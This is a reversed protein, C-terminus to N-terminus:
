TDPQKMHLKSDRTTRVALSSSVSMHMYDCMHVSM